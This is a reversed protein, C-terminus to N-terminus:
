RAIREIHGLTEDAARDWSYRALVAPARALQAAAAAPSRLFSELAAATGEIDGGRVYAAAAGYV